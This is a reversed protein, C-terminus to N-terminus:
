DQKAPSFDVYYEKGVQFHSATDVNVVSLSIQGSPTYKFFQGNESEPNEDYVADLDITVGDADGEIKRVLFKARVM